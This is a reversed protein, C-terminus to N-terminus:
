PVRRGAADLIREAQDLDATVLRQCYGTFNDPAAAASSAGELRRARRLAWRFTRRRLRREPPDPRLVVRRPAFDPVVEIGVRRLQTQVLEVSRGPDRRGDHRLSALAPEGACVYIGDSGRRCGARELLRRAESPRYRYWELECPLLPEPEPLGRQRSARESRTARLARVIATRDIGYALAQRM